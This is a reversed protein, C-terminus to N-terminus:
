VVEALDSELQAAKRLLGRLVIVLLALISGVVIGLVGLLAITPSGAQASSIIILSGLVILTAVVISVLIVDVYRFARPNFIIGERALTLLRWVCVLAAQLCLVFLAAAIVGPWQLFAFPPLREAMGAAIIPVVVLQCLLLLALLVAILAKLLLITLQHM